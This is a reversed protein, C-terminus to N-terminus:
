KRTLEYSVNGSFHFKQVDQGGRGNQLQNRGEDEGLGVM